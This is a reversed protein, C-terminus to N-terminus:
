PLWKTGWGEIKGSLPSKLYKNKKLIALVQQGFVATMAVNTKECILGRCSPNAILDVMQLGSVNAAKPRLKLEKSSLRKQFLAAPVHDTGNRYLYQYAKELQMNEKKGRSEALADGVNNTSELWQVYRELLVTLCYHYPHFRWVTYRRAHEKKDIVATFVRYTANTLVAMLAADFQELLAPNRLVHFPPKRDMIDRRHLVVNISQFCHNKIQNLAVTFQGQEYDLRMIVGTVGLYQETPTLCSKMDHNGVEDIFLRYL